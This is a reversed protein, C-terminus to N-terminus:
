TITGVFYLAALERALQEEDLGCRLELEKFNAPALMLERLDAPTLSRLDM